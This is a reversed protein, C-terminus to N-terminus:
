AHGVLNDYKFRVLIRGNVTGIPDYLGVCYIDGTSSYTIATQATTTFTIDMYDGVLAKALTGTYYMIYIGAPDLLEVDIDASAKDDTLAIGKICDTAAIIINGDDIEVLDGIKFATGVGGAPFKLVQGAGNYRQVIGGAM